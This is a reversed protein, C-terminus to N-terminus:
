IIIATNCNWQTGEIILLWSSSLFFNFWAVKRRLMKQHNGMKNFFFFDSNCDIARIRDKSMDGVKDPQYSGEM